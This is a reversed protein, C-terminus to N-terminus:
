DPNEPDNDTGEDFKNGAGNPSLGRSSTKKLGWLNGHKVIESDKKMAPYLSQYPFKTKFPYNAEKMVELIQLMSLPKGATKLIKVVADRQSMGFFATSDFKPLRTEPAKHQTIPAEKKTEDVEAQSPQVGLLQELSNIAQTVMQYEAALESQRTVLRELTERIQEETESM